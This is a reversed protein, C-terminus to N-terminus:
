LSENIFRAIEDLHDTESSEIRNSNLRFQQMGDFNVNRLFLKRRDSLDTNYSMYAAQESTPEQTVLFKHINEAFTKPDLKANKDNLLYCCYMMSSGFIKSFKKFDFGNSDIANILQGEEWYYKLLLKLKNTIESKGDSAHLITVTENNTNQVTINRAIPAIWTDPFKLINIFIQEFIKTVYLGTIAWVRTVLLAVQMKDLMKCKTLLNSIGTVLTSFVLDIANVYLMLYYWININILSHM